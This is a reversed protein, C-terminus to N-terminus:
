PSIQISRYMFYTIIRSKAFYVNLSFHHLSFFQKYRSVKLSAPMMCSSSTFANRNTTNNSTVVKVYEVGIKIEKMGSLVDIKTLNIETLGNVMASYKVQPIDIWGCRRPRGTTTGYEGGLERIKNGLENHLETPFPGEGVRTCYAKVVGVIHNIKNPSIGLGTCVSGVSPNSSTVYPYTGFDIDIMTANAGEILIKKGQQYSANTYEITDCTMELITHRIANYYDLQDQINIKLTPYTLEYNSKMARLRTEFYEM